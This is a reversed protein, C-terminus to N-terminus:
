KEVEPRPKIAEILQEAKKLGSKKSLEKLKTITDVDFEEEGNLTYLWKDVVQEVLTKNDQKEQEM